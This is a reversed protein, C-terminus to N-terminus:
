LAVNVDYLDYTRTKNDGGDRNTLFASKDLIDSFIASNLSMKAINKRGFESLNEKTESLQLKTNEHM